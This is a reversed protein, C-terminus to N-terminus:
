IGIIRGNGIPRQLRLNQKKRGQNKRQKAFQLLNQVKEPLMSLEINGKALVEEEIQFYLYPSIFGVQLQRQTAIHEVAQASPEDSIAEMQIIRQAYGHVHGLRWGYLIGVVNVPTGDKAHMM